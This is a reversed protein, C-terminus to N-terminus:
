ICTDKFYSISSIVDDKDFTITIGSHDNEVDTMISLTRESGDRYICSSPLWKALYQAIENAKQDPLGVYMGGLGFGPTSSEITSVVTELPQDELNRFYEWTIQFADYTYIITHSMDCPNYAEDNYPILCKSLPEGWKAIAAEPTELGGLAERASAMFDDVSVCPQAKRKLAQEFSRQLVAREEPTFLAVQARKGPPLLTAIALDIQFTEEFPVLTVRNSVITEPSYKIYVEYDWGEQHTVRFDYISLTSECVSLKDSLGMGLIPTGDEKPPYIGKWKKYFTRRAAKLEKDSLNTNLYIGQAETYFEYFRPTLIKGLDIDNLRIERAPSM